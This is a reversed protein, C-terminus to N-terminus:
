EHEGSVSACDNLLIFNLDELFDGDAHARVEINITEPSSILDMCDLQSQDIRLIYRGPLIGMSYFSGDSFTTIIEKGARDQEEIIVKIGGTPQCSGDSLLTVRGEIVGTRYLPIKILKYRNPDAIFSFRCNRPALMPDPLESQIIEVNYSQYSNLRKIHLVGEPDPKMDVSRNLRVATSPVLEEGEDYDGNQNSDVFMLFSVGARGVQTRDSLLVRGGAPLSAVSGSISQRYLHDDSMQLFGSSFRFINLDINLGAQLYVSRCSPECNMDIHFRGRRTVSRSIRLGASNVVDDFPDYVAKVNLIVGRILAPVSQIGPSIYTLSAFVSGDAYSESGYIINLRGRYDTRLSFRRLRASIGGTLDNGAGNRFRNRRWSVRFGSKIGAPAFPFFVGSFLEDELLRLNLLREDRFRTYSIKWNHGKHYYGEAGTRYLMGPAVSINLLYQENIRATVSSYYNFRADNSFYAAGGKVTLNKTIGGAVFGQYFLTGDYIGPMGGNLIGAKVDYSVINEPLLDDPTIIRGQRTIMEGDPKYIQVKTRVSGYNLPFEFKYYGHDDAHNFASLRNNLYLEVESGSDTSGEIVHSSCYRRPAVPENSIAVGTIRRNFIGDAYLQGARFTTIFPNDKFDYEWVTNAARISSSKASYAGSVGGSLGGGLIEAGGKVLYNLSQKGNGSVMGINYDLVGPKLLKRDRPFAKSFNGHEKESGAIELRRRKRQQREEVPLVGEYDLTVNMASMNVTFRMNFFKEFLEPNLYIDNLGLRVDEASFLIRNKGIQAENSGLDLKWTMEPKYWKGEVSNGSRDTEHYLYLLSFLESVPLYFSGGSYIASIYHHGTARCYFLLVTEEDQCYLFAGSILLDSALILSIAAIHLKNLTTM